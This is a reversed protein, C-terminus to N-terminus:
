SGCPLEVTIRTGLGPLSDIALMGALANVRDAIGEIGCGAPDAGGIGDDSIEIRLRAPEPAIEIDVREAHSHKIANAIAENIIFYAATQFQQDLHRDDGLTTLRIRPTGPFSDALETVAAILGRETLAAPMVGHVFGRLETISDCLEAHLSAAQVRAGDTLGADARLLDARMALGILRTQLGDHLERAIRSREADITMATASM